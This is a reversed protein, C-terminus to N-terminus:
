AFDLENANSKTALQGLVWLCGSTTCFVHLDRCCAWIARLHPVLHGFTHLTRDPGPPAVLLTFGYLGGTGALERIWRLIM